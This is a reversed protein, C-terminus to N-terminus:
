AALRQTDLNMRQRLTDLPTDIEDEWRVFNLNKASRGYSWGDVIADMAPVTISPKIYAMHGLTVALRMAHYPFRLQALYFAALSLEGLLSSDYGALVHLFDHIQFGRVMMFSMDDPLRDLKGSARLEENFTQYNRGLNAELNNTVIFRHYGHGLTGPACKALRDLELPESIFGEDICERAGPLSNLDALYEDIAQQPAKEFWDHFLFYVHYDLPSDVAKLFKEAFERDVTPQASM